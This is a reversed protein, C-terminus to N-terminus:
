RKYPILFAAEASINVKDDKFSKVTIRVTHAESINDLTLYVPVKKSEGAKLSVRDPIIKLTDENEEANIVLRVDEDGRNQLSLIYSNVTVGEGTIRPTFSYNPLVIM